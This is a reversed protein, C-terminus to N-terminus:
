TKTFSSKVETNAEQVYSYPAKETLTGLKTKININGNNDISLPKESDYILKIQKPDAGPHVIFDYKMGGKSSNYFLWDINPYVDKITIKEYQYM